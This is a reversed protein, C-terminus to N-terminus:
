QQPLRAVEDLVALTSLGLDRGVAEAVRLVKYLGGQNCTHDRGYGDPQYNRRQLKALQEIANARRQEPPREHQPGYHSGSAGVSDSSVFDEGCAKCTCLVKVQETTDYSLVFRLDDKYAIAQNEWAVKDPREGFVFFFGAEVKKLASIRSAERRQKELIDVEIQRNTVEERLAM